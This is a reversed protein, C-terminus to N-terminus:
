SILGVMENSKAHIRVGKVDQHESRVEKAVEIPVMVQDAIGSPPEAVLNFDLIGDSLFSHSDSAELGPETWGSSNVEGKVHVRMSGDKDGNKVEVSTM